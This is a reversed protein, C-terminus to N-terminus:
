VIAFASDKASVAGGYKSSSVSGPLIVQKLAVTGLPDRTFNKRILVFSHADYSLDNMAILVVSFFTTTSLASNPDAFIGDSVSVSSVSAVANITSIDAGYALVRPQQVDCPTAINSAHPRVRLISCACFSLCCGGDLTAGACFYASGVGQTRLPM